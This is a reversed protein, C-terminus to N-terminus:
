RVPRADIRRLRVTGEGDIRLGAPGPAPHTAHGHGITAGDVYGYFHGQDGTARLTTWGAADIPEGGMREARGSVVRGLEAEDNLRLFHYSDPGIVNHVLAVSGSFGSVDLEAEADVGVLNEGAVVMVPTGRADLVVIHGDTTEDVRVTLDETSGEVFRFVDAFAEEAGPGITWEFGGGNLLSPAAQAARQRRQLTRLEDEMERLAAVGVGYEFVLRGGYEATQWVLVQGGIGVLVVIIRLFLAPNSKLSLLAVRLVAFAGFFILTYLALDQHTNLTSVAETPVTVTDAALNGTLYSALAGLAGAAYLVVAGVHMGRSSRWFLGIVDVIGAAVLLSIPFHVVLPHANPAWDPLM